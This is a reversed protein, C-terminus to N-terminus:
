NYVHQIKNERMQSTLQLLYCQKVGSDSNVQVHDWVTEEGRDEKERAPCSVSM